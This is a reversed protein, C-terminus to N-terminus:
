KGKLSIYLNSKAKNHSPTKRGEDIGTKYKGASEKMAKLALEKHHKEAKEKHAKAGKRAVVKNLNSLDDRISM